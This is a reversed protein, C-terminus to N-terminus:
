PSELPVESGLTQMHFGRDRMIRLYSPGQSSSLHEPHGASHPWPQLYAGEARRAGCRVVGGQVGGAPVGKSM